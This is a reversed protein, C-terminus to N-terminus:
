GCSRTGGLVRKRTSSSSPLSTLLPVGDCQGRRQLYSGRPLGAALYKAAGEDAGSDADLIVCGGKSSLQGPTRAPSAPQRPSTVRKVISSSSRVCTWTMTASRASCSATGTCTYRSTASHHPCGADQRRLLREQSRRVVNRAPNRACRPGECLICPRTERVKLKPRSPLRSAPPPSQYESRGLSPQRASLVPM